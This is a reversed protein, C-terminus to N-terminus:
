DNVELNEMPKVVSDDSEDSDTESINIRSMLQESLTEVDMKLKSIISDNKKMQEELSKLKSNKEEMMILFENLDDNLREDIEKIKTDFLDMKKINEKNNKHIITEHLLVVEKLSVNRDNLPEPEPEPEPKTDGRTRRRKAASLGASSSM